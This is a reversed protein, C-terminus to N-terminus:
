IKIENSEVWQVIYGSTHMILKSVGQILTSKMVKEGYNFTTLNATFHM